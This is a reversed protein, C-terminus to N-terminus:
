ALDNLKVWNDDNVYGSIPADATGIQNGNGDYAFFTDGSGENMPYYRDNNPNQDWGTKGDVAWFTGLRGTNTDLVYHSKPEEMGDISCFSVSVYNVGAATGDAKNPIFQDAGSLTITNGTVSPNDYMKTGVRIRRLFETNIDGTTQITITSGVQTISDITGGLLDDQDIRGITSNYGYTSGDQGVRISAHRWYEPQLTLKYQDTLFSQAQENLLTEDYASAGYPFRYFAMAYSNNGLTRWGTIPVGSFLDADKISLVEGVIRGGHSTTLVWEVRGNANRAGRVILVAWFNETTLETENMTFLVSSTWNTIPLALNGPLSVQIYCDGRAFGSGAQRRVLFGFSSTNGSDNRPKFGINFVAEGGDGDIPPGAHILVYDGEQTDCLISSRGFGTEPSIPPTGSLAQNEEFLYVSSTTYHQSRFYGLDGSTVQYDMIKTGAGSVPFGQPEDARDCRLPEVLEGAVRGNLYPQAPHHQLLEVRPQRAYTTTIDTM